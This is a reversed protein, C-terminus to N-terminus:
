VLVDSFSRNMRTLRNKDYAIKDRIFFERDFLCDWATFGTNRVPWRSGSRLNVGFVCLNGGHTEIKRIESYSIFTDMRMVLFVSVRFARTKNLRNWQMRGVTAITASTDNAQFPYLVIGSFWLVKVIVSGKQQSLKTEVVMAVM